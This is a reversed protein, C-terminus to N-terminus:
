AGRGREKLAIVLKAAYSEVEEPSLTKPDFEILAEGDTTKVAIKTDPPLGRRQGRRWWWAILEQLAVPALAILIAVATPDLLDGRARGAAKESLPRRVDRRDAVFAARSLEPKAAAMARASAQEGDSSQVAIELWVRDETM